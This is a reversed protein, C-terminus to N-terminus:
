YRGSEEALSVQCHAKATAMPLAINPFESRHQILTFWIEDRDVLLSSFFDLHIFYVSLRWTSENKGALWKESQLGLGRGMGSCDSKRGM